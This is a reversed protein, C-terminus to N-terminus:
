DVWIFENSSLLVRLYSALAQRYQRDWPVGSQKLKLTIGRLYDEGVRTEEATARRSFLLQYAYDIRQSEDPLGMGIRVALKDAQDHMFPDNMMFLAQIATTSLPRDPVTDNTDAGDFIALFPQKRIRQQMLYVSRHDTPYDAVFAKHQSYRWEGQPPFPHPGPDVAPDLSGSVSLVTDRVEEASLRRSNFRWVYANGPDAAANPPDSVSAMQYARSCMILKHMAKVSWGSEIFRRALYDLLAPNSPPQGRHGFDNPTAVIGQGFHYAWIRNVMVRATLPNSPDAIWDALERRGSGKEGRPLKQGGLITLFGRPVEDGLETYIGKRQIRADHPKGECVAYARDVDPPGKADLQRQEERAEGLEANVQELTKGNITVPETSPQRAAKIRASLALRQNALDRVRVDLDAVRKEYDHLRQADEASALPVFDKPHRLVETGPFAFKTSDFIGYLAYYDSAPVPDFKHDHCRACGLSLGLMAKGLNDITDQITLYFENGQSGFRRSIALYGTAITHEHREAESSGPLLDGAVQERLFQDYPKDRNFSDIVYNRYKYAQPIPFDSNCGSTDAYRVVDLWHRGWQEGYHPSELLRNVLKDFGDRSQDALFANVEEPTPPLGTLDYTARRILTRKDVPGTPHLHHSEYGAELFDDVPSILGRQDDVRPPAVDKVPQFSWFRKEKQYDFPAAGAAPASTNRLEDTALGASCIVCLAMAAIASIWRTNM